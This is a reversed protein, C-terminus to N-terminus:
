RAIVKSEERAFRQLKPYLEDVDIFWRIGGDRQRTALRDLMMLYVLHDRIEGGLKAVTEVDQIGDQRQVEGVLQGVMEALFADLMPSRSGQASAYSTEVSRVRIPRAPNSKDIDLKVDIVLVKGGLLLSSSGDPSEDLFIEM